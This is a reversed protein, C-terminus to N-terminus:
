EDDGGDPDILHGALLHEAVIRETRAVILKSRARQARPGTPEEGKALIYDLDREARLEASVIARLHAGTMQNTSTRCSM